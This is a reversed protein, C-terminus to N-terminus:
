EMESTDESAEVFTVLRIREVKALTSYKFTKARYIIYYTGLVADGNEDIKPSYSGDANVIMDTEVSVSSNKNMGFEIVKYGDEVYNTGVCLSLEESGLLTFTDRRTLLFVGGFGLGAGIVLVLILILCAKLGFKKVNKEIEMDTKKNKYPVYNSRTSTAKEKSKTTAM